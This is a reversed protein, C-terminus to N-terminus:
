NDRARDAANEPEIPRDSAPKEGNSRLWGAWREDFVVNESDEDSGREQRLIKLREREGEIRAADKRRLEELEEQNKVYQEHSVRFGEAAQRDTAAREIERGRDILHNVGFFLGALVAGAMLLWKGIELM